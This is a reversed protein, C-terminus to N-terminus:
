ASLYQMIFSNAISGLLCGLTICLGTMPGFTAERGPPVVAPAHMCATSLLHGQTLGLGAVLGFPWWDAVLVTRLRWPTPTVVHCVMLAVVLVGRALAYALLALAPPPRRGWPGWSSMVRGCLDGLSFLVFLVPVFLDGYLRGADAHAACPSVVAPNLESCIFAAVGPFVALSAGMTLVIAAAYLSFRLLSRAPM